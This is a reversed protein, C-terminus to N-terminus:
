AIKSAKCVGFATHDRRYVLWANVIAVDFFNHFFLQHYWKKSRFFMRYFATLADMKDVGGMNADYYKILARCRVDTKQTTSVNKDWRGITTVPQTSGMSKLDKDSILKLGALRNSQVTGM